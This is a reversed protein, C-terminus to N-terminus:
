LHKRIYESYNKVFLMFQEKSNLHKLGEPYYTLVELLARDGHIATENYFVPCEPSICLQDGKQIEPKVENLMYRLGLQSSLGM